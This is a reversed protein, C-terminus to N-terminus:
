SVSISRPPKVIAEESKSLTITLIGDKYEANIKETNIAKGLTFSRSFGCKTFENLLYQIKNQEDNPVNASITLIEKEINVSFEDKSFGPAVLQIKYAHSEEIINVSPINKCDAAYRDVAHAFGKVFDGYENRTQNTRLASPRAISLLTM